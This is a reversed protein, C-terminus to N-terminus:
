RSANVEFPAITLLEATAVGGEAFVAIGTSSPSPFIQDTLVVEGGAAFVEVSAIDVCVDLRVSGEAGTPLPATHVAAFGDPMVPAGSRTRDVRIAGSARDIVIRTREDAGARVELGVREATGLTFEAVIRAAAAPCPLELRGDIRAADLRHVVPADAVIPSQVLRLEGDRRRLRLRRPLTMAGRFTEAPVQKAYAWNSMWGQAVPSGPADTYCVAAYCDAGHDFWRAEQSPAFHAGDFDGVIYQMGSGGAPGHSQVSLLAVSAFDDSGEIPVEIIDPCEWIGETFGFPGADSLHEWAILDDSGYFRIKREQALVLAMTWADGRAILKPDRFESSGIDIVPNGPYRTWTRGDDTSSALSQSQITTVHDRSTYMAIMPPRGPAGLGSRNGHDVVASGSLASEEATAAIAVPLEVWSVLDTSVAHGWSARGPDIGGEANYQFFLHYEGDHFLLGNPDNMWNRRPTFHVLPRVTPDFAM